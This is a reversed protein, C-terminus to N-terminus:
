APFTRNWELLRVATIIGDVATYPDADLLAQAETQDAAEYIILAGSDDAWPGSEHLKGEALLQQLYARHRPRTELRKEADGFTVIAAFKAM